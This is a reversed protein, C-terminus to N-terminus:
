KYLSYGVGFAILLGGTILLVSYDDETGGLASWIVVGIWCLIGITFLVINFHAEIFRIM